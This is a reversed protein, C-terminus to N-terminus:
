PQLDSQPETQAQSSVLESEQLSACVAALDFLERSLPSAQVDHSANRSAPARRKGKAITARNETTQRLPKTDTSDNEPRPTSYNSSDPTTNNSVAPSKKVPAPGFNIMGISASLQKINSPTVHNSSGPPSPLDAALSSLGATQQPATVGSVPPSQSQLQQQQQSSPELKLSDPVTTSMPRLSSLTVRPQTAQYSSASTATNFAATDNVNINSSSSNQSTPGKTSASIKLSTPVQSAPKLTSTPQVPASTPASTSAQPLRKTATTSISATMSSPDSFPTITASATSTSKVHTQSVNTASTSSGLSLSSLPAQTSASQLQQPEVLSSTPRTANASSAFTKTTSAPRATTSATSHLPKNYTPTSNTPAPTPVNAATASQM